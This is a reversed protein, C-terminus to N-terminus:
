HATKQIIIANLAARTAPGVAGTQELGKSAQFRGVAAATLAGYKGTIQADPYIDAGLSALLEQLARNDQNIADGPALTTTFRYAPGFEKFPWAAVAPTVPIGVTLASCGLSSASTQKEDSYGKIYLEGSVFSPSQDLVAKFETTGIEEGFSYDLYFTDAVDSVKKAWQDGLLVRAMSEDKIPRLIRGMQVLYVKPNTPFKVLRLGPRFTVNKGLPIQALLTLPIIKVQSFDCYWSQYVRPDPFAHRRGDAGLYYVASDEQTKPNGDDKLKVLNHVAYGLSTMTKLREVDGTDPEIPAPVYGGGGGGGGGGSSSVVVPAVPTASVLLSPSSTAAANIASVQFEHSIGNTLGSVTISTSSSAPHTFISYSVSGTQKYEVLYNTIASGGNSVPAVWSLAVQGNGATAALGTPAGPAFANYTVTNDLSTSTSNANGAVDIVGGNKVRPRITGFGLARIVVSFTTNNMPAIQTVSTVAVGSASSLSLDIDSATFSAPQIPEDFVVDFTSTPNNTPDPQTNSQEIAVGAGLTDITIVLDSSTPSVNGVPTEQVAHLASYVGDALVSATIAVTGGVCTGSGLLTSTTYLRVEDGDVCSLDFTPTTDNTRDDTNSVGSDSVAQLDPVGPAGSAVTSIVVSLASSTVSVNGAVDEQTAQIASYTGDALASSTIAATGGVCAATGLVTVGDYLTVADGTLCTIDFTPTTDSTVNDTSSAGTDSVAQLDPTGPAADAVTDIVVVLQSSTPSSNGAADVQVAQIASYVGDTLVSSTIAASGGVCVVSGLLTTTSYLNVTSGTVCAIDFSPTAVSTINDTSSSGTDSAAQLDPAGPAADPTTDVVLRVSTSSTLLLNQNGSTGSSHTGLVVSGVVSTGTIVDYAGDPLTGVVDVTVGGLSVAGNSVIKSLTVGNSYALVKALSGAVNLSGVTLTGASGTGNGPQLFSGAQNSIAVSGNITGTGSLKSANVFVSSSLATSGTVRLEGQSVTTNGAYTNAGSLELVGVGYKILSGSGVIVGSTTLTNAVIDITATAGSLTLGRDTSTTSGSYRLNGGTFVLNTAANTAAGLPSAIGGIGISPVSITGTAFELIGTFTNTGTLILDGSGIKVFRGAGALVGSDTLTASVIDLTGTGTFTMGRNTSTTVGTYRLSGGNFAINASAVAAAGLNGAIGGNSITNISVVGASMTTAGTRTNTAALVLTGSGSKTLAGTGALLGNLTLTNSPINITGAGTFTMGRNTSTTVGTYLLAGGNFAINAPGSTAAGISGAVGGDGITNVSLTGGGLTTIGTYTNTAALVWQGAATKSLSTLGPAVGADTIVPSFTNAGVQTGSLTLTRAVGVNTHAISGTNTFNLVGSGNQTITGGASLTFLRDTNAAIGTYTLNGSVFRLNAAANSSIGLSSSAGGNQLKNISLVGGTIVTIGSYTNTASLTLTSANLKNFGGTGSLISGITANNSVTINTSAAGLAISGGSVTYNGSLPANFLMSNVTQTGTGGVTVTGAAGGGSGIIVDNSNVWLVNTAGNDTTWNTTTTNWVGAGDDNVGNGNVPDWTYTVAHTVVPLVGLLFALSFPAVRKALLNM